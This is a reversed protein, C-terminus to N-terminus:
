VEDDWTGQDKLADEPEPETAAEEGGVYSAPVTGAAHTQQEERINQAGPQELHQGSQPAKTAEDRGENKAEDPDGPGRLDATNQPDDSSVTM